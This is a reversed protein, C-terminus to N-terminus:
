ATVAGKRKKARVLVAVAGATVAALSAASWLVIGQVLSFFFQEPLMQILVEYDPPGPNLQWLDNSFFLLHFQTFATDFDIAFYVGLAALLSGMVIISIVWGRALVRLSGGRARWIVILALFLFSAAAITRMRYGSIFLRQVDVMHSKERADFVEREEGNIVARMDLTDSRGRTYELLKHTVAKLNAEDMGTVEGLSYQKQAAQYRGEDFAVLEFCTFLITIFLAVGALAALAHLIAKRM